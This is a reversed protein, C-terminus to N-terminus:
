GIAGLGGDYNEAFTDTYVVDFQGLGLFEDSALVDQWKGKLIKM